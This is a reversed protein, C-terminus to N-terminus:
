TARWKLKWITVLTRKGNPYVIAFTHSWSSLGKTYDQNLRCMAGVQMAGEDHAASHSHGVISKRGTRKFAQISGRGGNAGVDGHMGVEIGGGAKPCLIFSEDQRLFRVGPPPCGMAWQVPYFNNDGECIADYAALNASLFMRANIHDARFDAEKLWRIFAKDHNSCVVVTECGSRYSYSLFDEASSFEDDVNLEDNVYKKFNIWSDDRDHHNQSRFDLLDHMVQYKPELVDLIGLPGWALQRIDDELQREHIDGWVIGEIRHGHTVEGGEAKRDLDYIVGDGDANLQRVFWNGDHDVEVWLGGFGHHFSAKQGAKKQIYNRETVTGTTYLFKTGSYKPSAVSKMAFKPHPVISSYRGTYSDLGSLPNVATPLIQLEGCWVLGPAIQMSEDSLFPMVEPAWWEIHTNDGEKSTKRKAGKSGISAKNYTFSAVLIRTGPKDAALAQLNKWCNQNVDTNNQASTLVYTFVQGEPPLPLRINDRSGM